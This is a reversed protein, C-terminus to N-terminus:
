SASAAPKSVEEIADMRLFRLDVKARTFAVYQINEEQDKQWSKRAWKSPMRHPDLIFVRQWELGKARHVTALTLRDTGNDSFLSDIREILDTVTRRDEPLAEIAAYLSSVKDEISQAKSEEGKATWKTVERERYADLKEELQEIALTTKRRGQMKKILALLGQGIDRGLVTCPIGQGLLRYALTILPATVRCLVADTALFEGLTWRDLSQVSGEPAGEWAELEPCFQKAAEIVAKSCRYNISLPLPVCSFEERIRDMADASAGRFGYIAQRVDGVAILRGGPKLMMRLIARQIPATDQAEDVCVVDYQPLTVGLKVTLYLMDDFDITDHRTNSAQLLKQAIEIGRDELADLYEAPAGPEADFTIDFHEILDRYTSPQDPMLVGVGHSKALGVLKIVGAGLDDMERDSVVGFSHMDALLKGVKKDDIKPRDLKRSLHANCASHFTAAEVHDPMREQAEVANKKNFVLYRITLGAPLRRALEEIVSTKGAGAVAMIMASETSNVGFDFVRNQYESWNRQVPAPKAPVEGFCTSCVKQGRESGWRFQGGRPIVGNCKGCKSEKFATMTAAM